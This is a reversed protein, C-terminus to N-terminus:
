GLHELNAWPVFETGAPTSIEAGFYENGDGTRQPLDPVAVINGWALPHPNRLTRVCSGVGVLGDPAPLTNPTVPTASSLVIVPHNLHRHEHLLISVQAGVADGASLLSFTTSAMVRNGFGETAVVPIQPPPTMELLAADISGVILGALGLEEARRIAAEDVSGGSAVITHPKLWDLVGADLNISADATIKLSGHGDQGLGFAAEICAGVTEITVSRGHNVRCVTGNVQATVEAVRKETEILIRNGGVASVIGKVPSRCVRKFPWFRNKYEAVVEAEEVADGTTKLLVAKLDVASLNLAAAVDVVVFDHPLSARGIVESSTVKQGNSVLIEGPAPLTRRIRISANGQIQRPPIRYM